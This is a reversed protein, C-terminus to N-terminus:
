RARTQRTLVDALEHNPWPTRPKMAALNGHMLAHDVRPMPLDLWERVHRIAIVEVPYIRCAPDDYNKGAGRAEQLHWDLLDAMARSLLREDGQWHLLVEEFPGLRSSMNPRRGARLALLERVFFAVSDHESFAIDPLSLMFAYLPEAGPDHLSLGLLSTWAGHLLSFPLRFQNGRRPGTQQSMRSLLSARRLSQGQRAEDFGESDGDMVRLMGNGLHWSGLMWAAVNAQTRRTPEHIVRRLQVEQDDRLFKENGARTAWEYLSRRLSTLKALSM